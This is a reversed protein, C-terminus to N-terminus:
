KNFPLEFYDTTNLEIGIERRAAGLYSDNYLAQNHPAYTSYLKNKRHPVNIFQKTAHKDEYFFMIRYESYGSITAFIKYGKNAKRIIKKEVQKLYTQLNKEASETIAMKTFPSDESPKPHVKTQVRRFWTAPRITPANM